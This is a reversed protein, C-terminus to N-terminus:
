HEVPSFRRVLKIEMSVDMEPPKYDESQEM